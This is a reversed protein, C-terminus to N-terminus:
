AAIAGYARLQEYCSHNKVWTPDLALNEMSGQQTKAPALRISM